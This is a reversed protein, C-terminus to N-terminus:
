FEFMLPTLTVTSSFTLVPTPSTGLETSYVLSMGGFGSGGIFQYFYKGVDSPDTSDYNDVSTAEFHKLNVKDGAPAALVVGITTGGLPDDLGKFSIRDAGAKTDIYLMLNKHSPLTFNYQDQGSSGLFTMFPQHIDPNVPMVAPDLALKHVLGAKMNTYTDIRAYLKTLAISTNVAGVDKDVIRDKVNDIGYTDYGKGGAMTDIGTGGDLTDKGAFTEIYDNGAGASVKDNKSGGYIVDNGGGTTITDNGGGGFVLDNTNAETLKLHKAVGAEIAESKSTGEQVFHVPDGKGYEDALLDMYKDIRAAFKHTVDKTIITEYVSKTGGDRNFLFDMADLVKAPDKRHAPGLVDVFDSEADRRYQLEPNKHGYRIEYWFAAHNDTKIANAIKPGVLTEANYFLSILVIKEKSPPPLEAGYSKLVDGLRKEMSTFLGSKGQLFAELLHTAQTDTVWLSKLASKEQATGSDGRSKSIIAADTLKGARWNLVIQLGQKQVSTLTGTTSGTLAYKFAAEIKSASLNKLNLGYGLTPIHKSDNHIAGDLSPIADGILKANEYRKLFAAAEGLFKKSSITTISSLAVDEGL